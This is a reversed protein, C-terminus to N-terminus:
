SKMTPYLVYKQFSLEMDNVPVDKRKFNYLRVNNGERIQSSHVINLIDEESQIVFEIIRIGSNKKEQSCEHTVLIEIFIPANSNNINECLLDAVFGGFGQERECKSYYRKLDYQTTSSRRCDDNYHFKCDDYMSCKELTNMVLVVSEKENFWDMIMIEAISHLYRDYSCKNAKHAFHWQRVNGRKTIMEQHCHPCFYIKEDMAATHRIDVLNGNTDLAFHQYRHSHEM